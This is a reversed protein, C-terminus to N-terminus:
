FKLNIGLGFNLRDIPIKKDRHTLQYNLCTGAKLSFKVREGGFRIFGMPEILLSSVKLPYTEFPGAHQYQTNFYNMDLLNSYLFGAKVAVGFDLRSFDGGIKGFNVQSFYLQYNGSLKTPIDHNGTETRGFGFGGYVELIKRDGLNKYIGAANQFFFRSDFSRNFYTQVAIKDTIGLSLTGYLAEKLSIGGDLRIEKKKSILPIDVTQNTYVSCGSLGFFLLFFYKFSNNM